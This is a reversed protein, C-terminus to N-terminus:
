KKRIKKVALQYESHIVQLEEYFINTFMDIAIKPRHMPNAPAAWAYDDFMMIGGHKLLPWSMCADTIVDKAIHSGDVYIFDFQKSGFLSAVAEHSLMKIKTVKRRPHKEGLIKMNHDFRDEAGLMEGTTQHEEGGEWTDIAVLEGGDRMMNEVTWVASRGEYSGIELFRNRQPLLPTIREWVSPAWSFWDRTFIYDAM